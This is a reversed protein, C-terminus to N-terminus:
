FTLVACPHGLLVALRRGDHSWELATGPAIEPLEGDIRDDGVSQRLTYSLLDTPSWSKVVRDARADILRLGDQWSYFAYMCSNPQPHWAQQMGNEAHMQLGACERPRVQLEGSDHPIYRTRALDSLHWHSFVMSSHSNKHWGDVADLGFIVTGCPSMTIWSPLSHVYPSPHRWVAGTLGILNVKRWSHKTVDSQADEPHIFAEAVDNSSIAENVIQLGANGPLASGPKNAIQVLMMAHQSILCGDSHAAWMIDGVQGVDVPSWHFLVDGNAADLLSLFGTWWSCDPDDLMVEWFDDAVALFQGSPAVETSTEIVRVRSIQSTRQFSTSHWMVGEAPDVLAVLDRDSWIVYSSTTDWQMRQLGEEIENEDEEEEVESDDSNGPASSDEDQGVRPLTPFHPLPMLASGLCAGDVTSHVTICQQAPSTEADTMAPQLGMSKEPSWWIAIKSRDPAWFVSYLRRQWRIPDTRHAPPEMDCQLQISPLSHVYLHDDSSNPPSEWGRCRFWCMMDCAVSLYFDDSVQGNCLSRMTCDSLDAIMLRFGCWSPGSPDPSFKSDLSRIIIHQGDATWAAQSVPRLNMTAALGTKDSRKPHAQRVSGKAPMDPVQASVVHCEAAQFGVPRSTSLDVVTTVLGYRAPHDLSPKESQVRSIMIHQSPKSIEFQPSWFIQHLQLSPDEDPHRGTNQSPELHSRLSDLLGAREQLVKRFTQCSSIGPPLLARSAQASLQHVPLAMIIEHWQVSVRSLAMLTPLCLRSLVHECLADSAEYLSRHAAPLEATLFHM